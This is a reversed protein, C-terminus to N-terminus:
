SVRFASLLAGITSARASYLNIRSMYQKEKTTEHFNVHKNMTHVLHQLLPGVQLRPLSPWLSGGSKHVIVFSSAEFLESAMEMTICSNPDERSCPLPKNNCFRAHISDHFYGFDSYWNKFAEDQIGLDTIEILSKMLTSHRETHESWEPSNMLKLTQAAIEPCSKATLPNLIDIDESIGTLIKVPGGFCANEMLGKVFYKASEVTHQTDISRVSVERPSIEFFQSYVAGIVKGLMHLQNAGKHTLDGPSCNGKWLMSKVSIEEDRVRTVSEGEEVDLYALDCDDWTVNGENPLVRLPSRDGGRTIIQSAVFEYGEPKRYKLEKLAGPFSAHCYQGMPDINKTNFMEPNLEYYGKFHSRTRKLEVATKKLKLVIPTLALLLIAAVLFVKFAKGFVWTPITGKERKM